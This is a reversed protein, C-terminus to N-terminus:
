GQSDTPQSEPPPAQVKAALVEVQQPTPDVPPPAAAVLAEARAQLEAQAKAERAAAIDAQNQVIPNGGDMKVQVTPLPAQGTRAVRRPALSANGRVNVRGHGGPRPAVYGNTPITRPRQTYSAPPVYGVSAVRVPAANVAISPVAFQAAAPADVVTGVPVEAQTTAAAAAAAEIMQDFKGIASEAIKVNDSAEVGADDGRQESLYKDLAHRSLMLEDVSLEPLPVAAPASVQVHPQGYPQTPAQPRIQVPAPAAIRAVRPQSLATPPASPIQPRANQVNPMSQVQPRGQEMRVQVMPLGGASVTNRNDKIVVNNHMGDDPKPKGDTMKVKVMPLGGTKVASDTDKPPLITVMQQQGEQVRAPAVPKVQVLPLAGASVPPPRSVGVAANAVIATSRLLTTEAM